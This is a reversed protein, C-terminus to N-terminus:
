VALQHQLPLHASLVNHASSVYEVTYPKLVPNAQKIATEEGRHTGLNNTALSPKHPGWDRLERVGSRLAARPLPPGVAGDGWSVGGSRRVRITPTKHTHPPPPPELVSSFLSFLYYPLAQDIKDRTYSTLTATLDAFLWHFSRSSDQQLKETLVDVSNSYNNCPVVRLRHDDQAGQPLLNLAPQHLFVWVSESLTHM